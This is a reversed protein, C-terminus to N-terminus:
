QSLYQAAVRLGNTGGDSFTGICCVLSNEAPEVMSSPSVMLMTPIMDGSFVTPQPNDCQFLDVTFGKLWKSIERRERVVYIGTVFSSSQGGFTGTSM